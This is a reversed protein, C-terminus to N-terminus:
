CIAKPELFAELGYKGYERGIGSQKYGGFPAVLDFSFQNIAVRGAQIRFAIKKARDEDASSIYAFLGYNTDNAIEVAEEEDKYTIISLVPGFIEERAIRMDNKVRSFVTPRVFNGAELGQPHGQGGVLLQAGEEQGIKIYDQVRQYQKKSVMPGVVTDEDAPNGVKLNEVTAKMITEVEELRSEPVLLRTGAVCAQGSNMFALLAAMPVATQFDADELLINPSKGGLELTVRKMTDVAGKAIMKGVATSGTFTIKAIDPNLTIENGVIEGRGTVINFVGAPLDAEHLCETIVQTQIASMESPKIVATCGAALATSLKSCIFGSSANWPTIIGVVGLPELLVESDGLRQQFEFSKLLDINSGIFALCSKAAERTFQLTGGYELLMAQIIDDQRREVADYIRQLYVIREAPTTRSYTKFANKAAAIAARTDEQDALRVTGIQTNNTPSVLEFTETGHPTVFNGNIYIREIMKM